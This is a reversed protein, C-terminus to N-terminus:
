PLDLPTVLRLKLMSSPSINPKIPGFPAPFDVVIRNNSLWILLLTAGILVILRWAEFRYDQRYTELDIYKFPTIYLLFTLKNSVRLIMDFFYAGLVIGIGIGINSKARKMVVTIFFGLVGFFICVLLGYTQLIGLSMISFAWTSYLISWM